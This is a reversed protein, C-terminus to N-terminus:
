ESETGCPRCPQRREEEKVETNVEPPWCMKPFHDVVLRIGSILNADEDVRDLLGNQYEARGRERKNESERARERERERYIYIYIDAGHQRAGHSGSAALAM